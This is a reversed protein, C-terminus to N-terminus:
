REAPQVDKIHAIVNKAPTCSKDNHIIESYIPLIIKLESSECILKVYRNFANSLDSTTSHIYEADKLLFMNKLLEDPIDELEHSNWFKTDNNISHWNEILKVMNTALLFGNSTLHYEKQFKRILNKNELEKLGHLITASPKNLATRLEKLEKPSEFMTLILRSRMTSTLIYKIENFEKNLEQKTKPNTM